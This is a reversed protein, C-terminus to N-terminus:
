NIKQGSSDYIGVEVSLMSKSRDLTIIYTESDSSTLEFQSIKTGNEIVTTYTGPTGKIWDLDPNKTQFFETLQRVIDECQNTTYGYEYLFDIDGVFSSGIFFTISPEEEDLNWTPRTAIKYIIIGFVIVAICIAIILLFKRPNNIHINQVIQQLPKEEM